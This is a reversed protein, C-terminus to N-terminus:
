SVPNPTGGHIQYDAQINAIKGAEAAGASNLIKIVALM